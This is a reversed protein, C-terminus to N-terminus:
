ATKDQKIASMAASITRYFQYASDTVVAAVNAPPGATTV